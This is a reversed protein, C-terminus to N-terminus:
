VVDEEHILAKTEEAVVEDLRKQADHLALTLEVIRERRRRREEVAQHYAEVIKPAAREFVRRQDDTIEGCNAIADLDYPHFYGNSELFVRRLKGPMGNIAYEVSGVSGVSGSSDQVKEVRLFDVGQDNPFFNEKLLVVLKKGAM